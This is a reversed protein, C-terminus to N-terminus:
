KLSNFKTRNQYILIQIIFKLLNINKNPTLNPQNQRNLIKNKVTKNPILKIKLHHQMPNILLNM